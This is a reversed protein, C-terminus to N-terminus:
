FCFSFVGPPFISLGTCFYVEIRRNYHCKLVYVSKREANMPGTCSCILSIDRGFVFNFFRNKTQYVSASHFCFGFPFVASFGYM